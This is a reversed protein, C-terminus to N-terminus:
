PFFILVKKRWDSLFNNFIEEPKDALHNSLEYVFAFGSNKDSLFLRSVLPNGPYEPYSIGLPAGM